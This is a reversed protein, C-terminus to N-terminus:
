LFLAAASPLGPLQQPCCPVQGDAAMSSTALLCGLIPTDDMLPWWQLVQWLLALTHVLHIKNAKTSKLHPRGPQAEADQGTLAFPVPPHCSPYFWWPWQGLVVRCFCSAAPLCGVSPQEQTACGRRVRVRGGEGRTSAWCQARGATVWAGATTTAPGRPRRATGSRGHVVQM